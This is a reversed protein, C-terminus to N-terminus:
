PVQSEFSQSWLLADGSDGGDNGIYRYLFRLKNGSAVRPIKLTFPAAENEKLSHVFYVARHMEIGDADLSSVWIELENMEYFRINKVVGDIVTTNDVAKFEWALKADFQTYHQPLTQIRELSDNHYIACGSLFLVIMGLLM